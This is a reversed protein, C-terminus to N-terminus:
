YLHQGGTVWLESGTVYGADESCLYYIANAVDQPTGMRGLPIRPILVDYEPQIM